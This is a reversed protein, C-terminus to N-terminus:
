RFFFGGSASSGKGDLNKFLWQLHKHKNSAFARPVNWLKGQDEEKDSHHKIGKLFEDVRPIPNAFGQLKSYVAGRKEELEDEDLGPLL